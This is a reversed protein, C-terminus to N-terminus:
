GNGVVHDQLLGLLGEESEKMLDFLFYRLYHSHSVPRICSVEHSPIQNLPVNTDSQFVHGINFKNVKDGPLFLCYM